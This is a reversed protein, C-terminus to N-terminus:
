NTSAIIGYSQLWNMNTDHLVEGILVLSYSYPFSLILSVCLMYFASIILLHVYKKYLKEKQNIKM